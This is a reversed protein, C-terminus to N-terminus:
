YIPGYDRTQGAGFHILQAAKPPNPQPEAQIKYHAWRGGDFYWSEPLMFPNSSSAESPQRTYWGQPYKSRSMIERGGDAFTEASYDTAHWPPQCAV